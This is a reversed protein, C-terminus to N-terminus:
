PESIVVIQNAPVNELERVAGSPFVVRLHDVQPRQGLGFHEVLSNESLYSPQSGIERYQKKGGAEIEIKTGFGSRNSRSCHVRVELWHNKNGGDNRLLMAHGQYNVVLIDVDGDNDYDAFAAGRGVHLENFVSGSVSGVDYFGAEPSKQWLLHNKMPILHTPDNPEQFTSGDAAFLDLQGDNDYDLFSTGWGIDGLTLSSIGGEMEAVDEFHLPGARNKQAPNYRLNQFLAFGQAVWHTIFIDPDGDNDFDGIALGMSGRYENVWAEESVDKFHGNHLNLYLKNESVDSAVYLDPWGDGNFDCWAASLNRNQTDQAGARKAVEAFTGNGQNHFLLNGVPPFSSPNIMFPVVATFQRSTSGAKAPDYKYDVYRCVYLDAYGDRDYDSWSLGAFFGRYKDFGVKQSVDTFSGDGNNHYLILHDFCSVALDQKGDNDYDGWAAGNCLGKYGVGAQATVDTFTGNGNNHYLRNSAPSSAIQDPSSTMPGAINSVYLDLYGDGDYDGWAAGSGMDEPLQTSRTGYFHKFRIGSQEAVETFQVAPFGAPVNRALENTIGEVREGPSYRASRHRVILLVASAALVLSLSILTHKVILKQRRTRPRPIFSVRDTM